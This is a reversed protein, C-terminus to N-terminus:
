STVTGDNGQFIFRPEIFDANCRIRAKFRAQDIEFSVGSNPAEMVVTAAERLQAVMFPKKSDLLYWALSDGDVTATSGTGKFMFRSAVVQYRQYLSNSSMLSGTSGAVTSPVAANITSNLITWADFENETGILLTDPSVELKLGLMNKQRRLAKHAAQMNPTTMLGFTAPRNFGGGIFPASAPAFPWNAEYSPQTESPRSRFNAYIIGNANALKSYVLVEIVLGMYEGLLKSNNSVQNTLDDEELELSVSYMSGYKRNRLKFDIGASRVEPYRGGEPVESPFTVGHLPAYLEEAKKSSVASVWKDWSKEVTQYMSNVNTQVGARLLQVFGSTVDAERLKTPLSERLAQWDMNENLSPLKAQDDYDFGFKKKFSERWRVESKVGPTRLVKQIIELNSTAREKFNSVIKGMRGQVKKM